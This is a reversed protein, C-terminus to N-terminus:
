SRPKNDVGFRLKNQIYKEGAQKYTEVYARVIYGVIFAPATILRDIITWTPKM